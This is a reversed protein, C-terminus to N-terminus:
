TWVGRDILKLIDRPHSAKDDRLGLDSLSDVLRKATQEPSDTNLLWRTQDDALSWKLSIRAEELRRAADETKTPYRELFRKRWTDVPTILSFTHTAKFPLSRYEEVSHALTELICFESQYSQTLTGYILDTNPFTIETVIDETRRRNEIENNTLYFFQNPEDNSRPERTTFSKVRSFDNDQRLIEKIVTSKGMASPAVLM